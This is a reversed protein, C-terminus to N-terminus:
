KEYIYLRGNDPKIFGKGRYGRKFLEQILSKMIGGHSVVLVNSDMYNDEIWNIIQKARLTTDTRGEEQSKHSFFWAMRSLVIWIKYHLKIESQNISRMGIERLRETKIIPGQGQYIIEATKSARFLDSAICIEWKPDHGIHGVPSVDSNNYDEVWQNFQDSTMWSYEPKYIVKFHRVLGIKM